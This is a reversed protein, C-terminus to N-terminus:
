EIDKDLLPVFKVGFLEKEIYISEGTQEAHRRVAEQIDGHVVDGLRFLRMTDVDKDSGRMNLITGFYHKRICLGAISSHYWEEKGQYRSKIKSDNLSKIYGDYIDRVKTSVKM